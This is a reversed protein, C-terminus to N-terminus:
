GRWFSPALLILVTFLELRGMLMALSLAWKAADPLPAFNGAPGIIDGLGPGVNSIATAAGSVATVFDLGLAGLVMALVLFCLMYVVLFGMVANSVEEPVPKKNYYPIFVGHPRLLRGMQARATAYAIQVRFIKIGCTTSGACGGIFMLVLMQAMAFGGWQGFDTTAFGTGTMVSVCNFFGHRLADLPHENLTFVQWIAAAMSALVAIWLFWRIQSDHLLMRSDGRLMKLYAIFPLSGLLMGITVIWDITPNDFHGVSADKTSYGGTAITTMAHAVADFGSMGAFYLALACLLTIGVYIVSLWGAFRAARPLVKEPTDFAETKFLQMGGVSLMPLLGMAMVVIGIGGLWQLLARWLLLGPPAHDLGVIVTSGTTTVGSMAEFFADTYSLKLDSFAFPLAGFVAVVTWILTTLLFAQRLNLATTRKGQTTLMISVGCFLTVLASAGFIQWDAYGAILDVLAPVAMAAALITLM